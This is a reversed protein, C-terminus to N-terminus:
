YDSHILPPRVLSGRVGWWWWWGCMVAVGRVGRLVAPELGGELAAADRGEGDGQGRGHPRGGKAAPRDAGDEVPQM